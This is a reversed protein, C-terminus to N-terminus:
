YHLNKNQGLISSISQSYGAYITFILTAMTLVLMQSALQIDSVRGILVACFTFVGSRILIFVSGPAGTKFIERLTQTKLKIKMKFNGKFYLIALSLFMLIRTILTALGAGEVGLGLDFILIKNVAFNLAIGTITILTVIKM